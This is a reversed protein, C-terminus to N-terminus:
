TTNPSLTLSIRINLYTCNVTFHIGRIVVLGAGNFSTKAPPLLCTIQQDLVKM